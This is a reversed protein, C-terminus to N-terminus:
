ENLIVKYRKAEKFTRWTRTLIVGKQCPMIDYQSLKELGGYPCEGIRLSECVRLDAKPTKPCSECILYDLVYVEKNLVIQGETAMMIPIDLAVIDNVIIDNFSQVTKCFCRGLEVKGNTSIIAGDVKVFHYDENGPKITIDNKAVLNGKIYVSANVLVSGCFVNGEVILPYDDGSKLDPATWDGYQAKERETPERVELQGLCIIDGYVKGPIYVDEKAGSKLCFGSQLHLKERAFVTGKIQCGYKIEVNRGYVGFNESPQYIAGKHFVIRWDLQKLPNKHPILPESVSQDPLVNCYTMYDTEIAARAIVTKDKIDRVKDRASSM